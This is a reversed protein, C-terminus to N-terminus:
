AIRSWPRRSPRSIGHAGTPSVRYGVGEGGDPFLSAVFRAARNVRGRGDRVMSALLVGFLYSIFPLHVGIRISRIGDERSGM